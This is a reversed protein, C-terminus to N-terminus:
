LSGGKASANCEMDAAGKFEVTNMRTELTAIVSSQGFFCLFFSWPRSSSPTQVVLIPTSDPPDLVVPIALWIALAGVSVVLYLRLLEQLSSDGLDSCAAKSPRM